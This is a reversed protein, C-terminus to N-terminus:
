SALLDKLGMARLQTKFTKFCLSDTNADNWILAVISGNGWLEPGSGSNRSETEIMPRAERVFKQAAQESKFEAGYMGIEHFEQDPDLYAQLLLAKVQDSKQESLGLNLRLLNMGCAVFTPNESYYPVTDFACPLDDGEPPKQLRCAPLSEASFALEHLTSQSSQGLAYCSSLLLFSLIFLSIPGTSPKM